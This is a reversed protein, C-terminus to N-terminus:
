RILSQGRLKRNLLLALLIAVPGQLVLSLVVIIGNHTQAEQFTPDQIITVYNRFGVFDTPPGYGQWSFFGYYAAMVVPFIVFGLFVILAPGVLVAIEVRAAVSTRRRRRVPPLVPTVGTSGGNALDVELRTPTSERVSM